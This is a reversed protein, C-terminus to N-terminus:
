VVRVNNKQVINGSCSQILAVHSTLGRKQNVDLRLKDFIEKLSASTFTKVENAARLLMNPYDSPYRTTLYALCQGAIGLSETKKIIKEEIDLSGVIMIYDISVNNVTFSLAADDVLCVLLNPINHAWCIKSHESVIAIVNGQPVIKSAIFSAFGDVDREFVLVTSKNSIVTDAILCTAGFYQSRLEKEYFESSWVENMSYIPLSFLVFMLSLLFQTM